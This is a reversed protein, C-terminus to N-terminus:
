NFVQGSISINFFNSFGALKNVWKLIYGNSFNFDELSWVNITFLNM